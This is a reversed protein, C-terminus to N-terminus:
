RPTEPRYRAFGDIRLNGQRKSYARLVTDGGCARVIERWVTEADHSAVIALASCVGTYFSQRTQAQIRRDFSVLPRRAKTTRTTM